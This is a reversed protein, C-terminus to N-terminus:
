NDKINFLHCKDHFSDQSPYNYPFCTKWIESQMQRKSQLVAGDKWILHTANRHFTIVSKLSPPFKHCKLNIDIVKTIFSVTSHSIHKTVQRRWQVLSANTDEELRDM